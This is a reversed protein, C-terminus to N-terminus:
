VTMRTLRRPLVAAAVAEPFPNGPGGELRM